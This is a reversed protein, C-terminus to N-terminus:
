VPRGADLERGSRSRPRAPCTRGVPHRRHDRGTAARRALAELLKGCVGRSKSRALASRGVSRHRGCRSEAVQPDTALLKCSTEHPMRRTLPDAIGAAERAIEMIPWIRSGTETPSADAACVRQAEAGFGPSSSVCWGPSARSRRWRRHHLPPLPTRRIVRNLVSDLQQLEIATTRGDNGRPASSCDGDAAGSDILRYRVSPPSKKGKVTLDPLPESTTLLGVLRFTAAGIVIEGPAAAEELRAATNVADGTVLTQSREGEGAVVEGTNLGIRVNIQIGQERGLQQNLDALADRVEVAARAARLADDEHVRPIGFVAMVADGIFKEVTGGHREIVDRALAFYRGMARRMAEPDVREGLETSGTVDVFLVTVVKRVQATRAEASLAAGCTGCFRFREPNSAGCSACASM